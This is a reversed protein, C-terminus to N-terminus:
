FFQWRVNGNLRFRLNPYKPICFKKNILPHKSSQLTSQSIQNSEKGITDNYSKALPDGLVQLYIDNM